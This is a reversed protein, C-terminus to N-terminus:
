GLEPAPIPPADGIATVAVIRRALDTPIELRIEWRSSPLNPGARGAWEVFVAGDGAVLDDWGIDWLQDSATLRYLDVHQLRTGGSTVYTNVLTFTPSPIPGDIGVGRCAARALTSKGAGLDGYLCVFVSDRVAAQGLRYGWSVLAEETFIM